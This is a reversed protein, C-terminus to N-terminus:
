GNYPHDFIVRRLRSTYRRIGPHDESHRRSRFRFFIVPTDCQYTRSLQREADATLSASRDSQTHSRVGTIGFADTASSRAWHRGRSFGFSPPHPLGSGMSGARPSKGHLCRRHQQGPNDLSQRHPNDRVQNISTGSGIGTPSGRDSIRRSVRQGCTLQGALLTQPCGCGGHILRQWAPPVCAM